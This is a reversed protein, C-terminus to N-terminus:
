RSLITGNEVVEGNEGVEVMTDTEADYRLTFDVGQECDIFFTGDDNQKWTGKDTLDNELVSEWTNDENATIKGTGYRSQYNWEGVFAHFDPAEVSEKVAEESEKAAEVSEKAAEESEKAAEKSEKVAEESEKAAEKSEKAAEESSNGAEASAAAELMKALEEETMPNTTNETKPGLSALGRVAAAAGLDLLGVLLVMFLMFVLVLASYRILKQKTPWTVRKLEHAMNRFPTAIRGPLRKFWAIVKNEGADQKNDQGKVPKQENQETTKKEDAM